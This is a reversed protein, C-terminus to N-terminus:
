DACGICIRRPSKGICTSLASFDQCTPVTSWSSLGSRMEDRDFPDIVHVGPDMEVPLLLSTQIAPPRMLM